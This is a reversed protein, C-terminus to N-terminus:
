IKILNKSLKKFNKIYHNASWKNNEIEINTLDRKIKAPSGVILTGDPFEKGETVLSGAGVLCNNGIKSGNLLISGMGILTNNGIQCGHLMSKHGITSGDGIIVPFNKDMHIVSNEQINSRNGIIVPENDGRIVAGFWIGVDEGIIVKGIVIANDAVWFNKKPLKPYDDFYKYLAM